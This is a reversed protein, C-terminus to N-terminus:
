NGYYTRSSGVGSCAVNPNFAVWPSIAETGSTGWQRNSTSLVTSGCEQRATTYHYVGAWTTWGHARKHTTGGITTKESQGTHSPTSNITVASGRLRDKPTVYAGAQESWGGLDGASASTAPLAIGVAAIAVALLSYSIKKM